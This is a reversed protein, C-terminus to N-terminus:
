TKYNKATTKKQLGFDAYSIRMLSQLESTPKESRATSLASRGEDGRQRRRRASRHRPQVPPPSRRSRYRDRLRAPDRRLELRARLAAPIRSEGHRCAAAAALLPRAM